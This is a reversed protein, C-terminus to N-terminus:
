SSEGRAHAGQPQGDADHQQGDHQQQQTLLAEIRGLQSAMMREIRATHEAQQQAAEVRWLEMLRQCEGLTGAPANTPEARSGHHFTAHREVAEGWRTWMSPQRRPGPPSLGGGGGGQKYM